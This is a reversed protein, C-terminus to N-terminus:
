RLDPSGEVGSRPGVPLGMAEMWSRLQRYVAPAGLLPDETVEWDAPYLIFGKTQWGGIGGHSGILEEFAAVEETDPDLVSIAAIDGVNDMADLGRLSAIAYPGFPAVPDEGVVREADLYRIGRRGVAIAGHAESRVLLLGIGPHNALAEVLGPHLEALHEVTLREVRANFYILALNGSPCVVLDPAEGVAAAPEAPPAAEVRRGLEVLGDRTRSRLARRAIAPGVGIGRTFESLFTNVAGWEEVRGTASEVSARGGMLAHVTDQLTVGYRQQFTAGLTQGHDSLVVFRYPRAADAAARELAGLTRDVGDLADFAEAREPGSHHAIEDYDTYDAYIVPTGRYMEEIILSTQLGRLLINTVARAIPYPFGRPMRPEIGARAQRRAQVLEKGIEGVTQFVVRLYNHPSVFFGYFDRPRGIGRTGEALAAMTMFSRSADGTVLNGISVGGRSLLGEGNSVRRVIEAADHPRNSVLLRRTAKEYWRFAPIRDNDGHLIGAQSASTQSPLMVEWRGLRMRRARLWRSMVPVRGARVQNRLVPHSLGDIQVIVLGPQDTRVVDARRVALQRVLSAYYSQEQDLAVVASLFTHVIAFVWSGWFAAGVDTVDIGPVLPGLIGIVFVQFVISAVGVLLLSIPAVLALFIPRVLAYLLAIVVVAIAVSAVDTVLIGPIAWATVAFSIWAIVFSFLGRKVLARRGARWEWLLHAQIGYFDILRRLASM